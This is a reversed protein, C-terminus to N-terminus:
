RSFNKVAFLTRNLLPSCCRWFNAASSRPSRMSTLSTKNQTIPTIPTSFHNCLRRMSQPHKANGMVEVRLLGRNQRPTIFQTRCKTQVASFLIDQEKKDQNEYTKTQPKLRAKNKATDFGMQEKITLVCGEKCVSLPSRSAIWNAWSPVTAIKALNMKGVAKAWACALTLKKKRRGQFVTRARWTIHRNFTLSISM